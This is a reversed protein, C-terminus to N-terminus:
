KKAKILSLVVIIIGILVAAFLVLVIVGSGSFLSALPAGSSCLTDGATKLTPYLSSLVSFIVVLLVVIVIIGVLIGQMAGTMQAAGKKTSVLMDYMRKLKANM